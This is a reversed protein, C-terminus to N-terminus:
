AGLRRSTSHHECCLPLTSQLALAGLKQNDRVEIGPGSATSGPPYRAGGAPRDCVSHGTHVVCTDSALSRPLTYFTSVTKGYSEVTREDKLVQGKYILRQDEVAVQPSSQSAVVEKLEKVSQSPEIECPFKDGGFTPKLFVTIKSM